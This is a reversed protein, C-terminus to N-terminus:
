YSSRVFFCYFSSSSTLFCLHQSNYFPEWDGRESMSRVVEMKGKEGIGPNTTSMPGSLPVSEITETLNQQIKYSLVPTM